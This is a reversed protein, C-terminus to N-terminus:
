AATIGSQCFRSGYGGVPKPYARFNRKFTEGYSGDNLLADAVVVTLITDDLFSSELTFLPFDRTRCYNFEYVSGVIAGSIAGGM